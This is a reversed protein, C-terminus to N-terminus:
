CYLLRFFESFFQAHIKRMWKGYKGQKRRQFCRVLKCIHYTWIRIYGSCKSLRSSEVKHKLCIDSRQLISRTNGVEAGFCGLADKGVELVHHVRCPHLNGETDGLDALREAILDIRAVEGEAGALELLHLDLEEALRVLGHHPVLEPAIRPDVPVSRQADLAVLEARPLLALLFQGVIAARTRVDLVQKRKGVLRLFELAHGM